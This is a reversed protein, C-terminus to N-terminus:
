LSLPAVSSGKGRRHIVLGEARLQEVAVRVPTTSVGLEAALDNLRLPMGPSLDRLIQGRLHTYVVETVSAVPLAGASPRSGNGGEGTGFRDAGRQFNTTTETTLGGAHRLEVRTSM